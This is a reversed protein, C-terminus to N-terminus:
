GIAPIKNDKVKRLISDIKKLQSQLIKHKVIIKLVPTNISLQKLLSLTIKKLGVFQHLGLNKDIIVSFEKHSDIDFKIGIKDYVKEKTKLSMLVIDERVVTPASFLRIPIKEQSKQSKKV